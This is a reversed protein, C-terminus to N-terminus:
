QTSKNNLFTTQQRKDRNGVALRPGARGQGSSRAPTRAKSRIQSSPCTLLAPRPSHRPHGVAAGQGGGAGGAPVAPAPNPPHNPPPCSHPPPSHSPSTSALPRRRRAAGVLQGVLRRDSPSRTGSVRPPQGKRSSRGPEGFGPRGLSHTM